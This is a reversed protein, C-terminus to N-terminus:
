LISEDDVSAITSQHNRKFSSEEVTFCVAHAHCICYYRAFRATTDASSCIDWDMKQCGLIIIKANVMFCPAFIAIDHNHLQLSHQKPRTASKSPCVFPVNNLHWFSMVIYPM